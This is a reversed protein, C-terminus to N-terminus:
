SDVNVEEVVEVVGVGIMRALIAVVATRAEESFLSWRHAPSPLSTDIGLSLQAPAAIRLSRL